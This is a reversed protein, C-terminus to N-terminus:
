VNDEQPNIIEIFESYKDARVLICVDQTWVEVTKDHLSDGITETTELDFGNRYPDLLIALFDKFTLDAKKNRETQYAQLLTDSLENYGFFPNLDPVSLLSNAQKLASFFENSHQDSYNLKLVTMIVNQIARNLTALSPFLSELLPFSGWIDPEPCVGISARNPTVVVYANGYYKAHGYDTTCILSRTRAPFQKWNPLESLLWTYENSTNQSLRVSTAPNVIYYDEKGTIGRYIPADIPYMSVYNTYRSKVLGVLGGATAKVKPDYIQHKYEKLDIVKVM